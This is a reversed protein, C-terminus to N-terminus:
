EGLQRLYDFPYIGANHGDIWFFQLAYQGVLEAPRDALLEAKGVPRIFLPEEAAKKREEGCVACPCQERLLEFSLVSKQGDQWEIRVEAAKLDVDINKPTYNENM